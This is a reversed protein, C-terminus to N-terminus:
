RIRRTLGVARRAPAARTPTSAKPMGNGPRHGEGAAAAVVVVITGPVVRGPVVTGGLLVNGTVVLGAEEDVVVAAGVVVEVVVGRRGLV